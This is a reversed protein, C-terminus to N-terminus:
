HVDYIQAIFRGPITDGHAIIESDRLARVLAQFAASLHPPGAPTTDRPPRMANKIRFHSMASPNAVGLIFDMEGDHHYSTLGLPDNIQKAIEVMPDMFTLPTGRLDAYEVDIACVFAPDNTTPVARSYDIAYNYAVGFSRTLSVFPSETDGSVHSIMAAHGYGKHPSHAPIGTQRLDAKRHLDHLFTGVGIGKYLRPM